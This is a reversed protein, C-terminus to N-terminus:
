NISLAAADDPDLGFAAIEAQDEEPLAACHACVPRGREEITAAREGCIACVPLPTM